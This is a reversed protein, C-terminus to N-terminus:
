NSREKWCRDIFEALETAQKKWDNSLVEFKSFTYGCSKSSVKDLPYGGSIGLLDGKISFDEKSFKYAYCKTNNFVFDGLLEITDPKSGLEKPYELWKVMNSLAIEEQTIDGLYKDNVGLDEMISYLLWLLDQNKKLVKLKNTDLNINNIINYKMIFVNVKDNECISAIESITKSIEDNKLYCALDVIVELDEYVLPNINGKKLYALIDKLKRKTAEIFVKKIEDNAYKFEPDNNLVILAMCNAIGNDVMDYVNVLTPLFSNYKAVFISYNELKTIFALKDCSSELLMCCLMFKLQNTTQYLEDILYPLKEMDFLSIKESFVEKVWEDINIEDINIDDVIVKIDSPKKLGNVKKVLEDYNM